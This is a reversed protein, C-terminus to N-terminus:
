SMYACMYKLICNSYSFIMQVRKRAKKGMEGLDKNELLFVIAKVIADPNKAPIIVGTEGNVVQESIGGVDSAVVVKEMSMAELISIPTGEHLSPLIFIDSLSLVSRVEDTRIYGTFIVHDKVGIEKTLSILNQYYGKQSKFVDGIILLLVNPFHEKLKQISLILYELGKRPSINATSVLLPSATQLNFKCLIGKKDKISVAKSSFFDTDVPEHIIDDDKQGLYYGISKKSIFIRNFRRILLLFALILPKPYLNSILVWLKKKKHFLCTALAEQICIFGNIQIVDPRETKLLKYLQVVTRPFSSLLDLGRKLSELNKIILPRVSHTRYVKFGKTIATNSFLNRMESNKIKPVLFITEIGFQQLGEAVKLSRLEISGFYDFPQVNLVKLKFWM